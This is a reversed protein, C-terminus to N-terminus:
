LKKTLTNNDKYLFSLDCNNLISIVYQTFPIGKVMRKEPIGFHNEMYAIDNEDAIKFGTYDIEGRADYVIGNYLIACHDSNGNIVIQAEPVFTRIIKALDYCGGSLYFLKTNAYEWGPLDTTSDLICEIFETM